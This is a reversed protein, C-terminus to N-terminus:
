RGSDLMDDAAARDGNLVRRNPSGDTLLGDIL